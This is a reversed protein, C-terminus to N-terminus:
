GEVDRLFDRTRDHVPSDFVRQAPGSEVIRGGDLFAVRDAIQRALRLDHTVVLMTMGEGALDRLVRRVEERLRPDLASTPEDLLLVEPHMALARAIAVRQQQGGSLQSPYHDRHDELGVKALLGLAEQRVEPEPRGLVHRPGEMVNELATRHQFLHFQQFVMGLKLRLLRQTGASPPESFDVSQEGIRVRGADARELQNLCRLLTSKGSGSGGLLAVTEGTAQSWDIGDLVQRDGFRKSLGEIHIM